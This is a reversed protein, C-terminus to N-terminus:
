CVGEPELSCWLCGGTSNMSDLVSAKIDTSKFAIHQNNFPLLQDATAGRRKREEEEERDRWEDEGETGPKRSQECPALEEQTRQLWEPIKEWKPQERILGAAANGGETEESDTKKWEKSVNGDACFLLQNYVPPLPPFFSNQHISKLRNKNRSCLM